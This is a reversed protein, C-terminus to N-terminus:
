ENKNLNETVRYNGFQYHKYNDYVNEPFENFVYSIYFDTNVFSRTVRGEQTNSINYKKKLLYDFDRGLSLSYNHYETSYNRENFVPIWDFVVGGLDYYIHITNSKKTSLFDVIQEKYLVSEDAESLYTSQSNLYDNRLSLSTFINLIIILYLFIKVTQNFLRFKKFIFPVSIWIYLFLIYTSSFVSLSQIDFYLFQKGVILPTIIVFSVIFFIILLNKYLLKINITEKNKVLLFFALIIVSFSFLNLLKNAYLSLDILQISKESLKDSYSFLFYIHDTTSFINFLFDPIEKIYQFGQYLYDRIRSYPFLRGDNQIRLSDFNINTFYQYWTLRLISLFLFTSLLLHKTNSFNKYFNKWNFIMIFLFFLSFIISNSLGGLYLSAPLIALVPFYTFLYYKEEFIYDFILKIFLANITTILFQYWISSTLYTVYFSFGLFSILLLNFEYKKSSLAFYILMMQLMSLFLSIFIFSNFVTLLKSVIVSLNPNPIGASSVNGFPSELLNNVLALWLTVAEDERWISLSSWAYKYFILIIIFLFLSTFKLHSIKTNTM